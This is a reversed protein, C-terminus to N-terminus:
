PEVSLASSVFLLRDVLEKIRAETDPDSVTQGEFKDGTAFVFRPLIMSRFDLMLSGALQMPAMYSINSGAACMIGVIKDTWAKGTLEILNKAASGFDYNYVPGALLIGDAAEIMERVAPLSPHGYSGAGDCFPLETEALDLLQAQEGKEGLYAQAFRALIRSRSDPHLSTSIVLVM